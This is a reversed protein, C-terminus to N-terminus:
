EIHDVHSGIEGDEALDLIHVPLLRAEPPFFTDKIREVVRRNEASFFRAPKQLERYHTIVKDFHGHGMTRVTAAVLNNLHAPVLAELLPAGKKLFVKSSYAVTCAQLSFGNFCQHVLLFFRRIPESWFVNEVPHEQKIRSLIGVGCIM